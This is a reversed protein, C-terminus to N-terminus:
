GFRLKFVLIASAILLTVTNSAVVPTSGIMLGYVLWLVVGLCFCVFMMLSIDKASRSKWTKIAQPLFAITTLVGALLGIPEALPMGFLM